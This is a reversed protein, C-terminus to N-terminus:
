AAWTERSRQCFTDACRAEAGTVQLRKGCGPCRGRALTACEASCYDRRGHDGIPEGCRKCPRVTAEVPEALTRPETLGLRHARQRVAAYTRGLDAACDKLYGFMTSAYQAAERVAADEGETWAQGGM